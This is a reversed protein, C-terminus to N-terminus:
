WAVLLALAIKLLMNGGACRGVRSVSRDAVCHLDSSILLISPSSPAPCDSRSPASLRYVFGAVDIGEPRADVMLIAARGDLFRCRPTRQV